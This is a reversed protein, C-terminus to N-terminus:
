FKRGLSAYVLKFFKESNPVTQLVNAIAKIISAPVDSPLVASPRVLSDKVYGSWPSRNFPVM